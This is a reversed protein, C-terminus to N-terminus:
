RFDYFDEQDHKEKQLMAAGQLSCLVYCEVVVWNRRFGLIQVDM